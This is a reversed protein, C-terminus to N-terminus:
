KLNGKNSVYGNAALRAARKPVDAEATVQDGARDPPVYDPAHDWVGLESISYVVRAHPYASARQLGLISDLVFVAEGDRAALWAHWDKEENDWGIVVRLNEPGWGLRRLTRYKALAIDECDGRSQAATQTLSSWSDRSESTWTVKNFYHHVLGLQERPPLTAAVELVRRFRALDVTECQEKDALCRGLRVDDASEQADQAVWPAFDSAPAIPASTFAFSAMRPATKLVSSKEPAVAEQAMGVPAATLAALVVFLTGPRVTM